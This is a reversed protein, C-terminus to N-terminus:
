FFLLFKVVFVSCNVVFNASVALFPIEIVLGYVRSIEGKYSIPTGSCSYITLNQVTALYGLRLGFRLITCFATRAISDRV